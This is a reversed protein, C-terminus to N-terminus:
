DEDELFMQEADIHMELLYFEINMENVMKRLEARLEAFQEVEIKSQRLKKREAVIYAYIFSVLALGAIIQVIM